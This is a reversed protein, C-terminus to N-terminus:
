DQTHPEPEFEECTVDEGTYEHVQQLKDRLRDVEKDSRHLHGRLRDREKKVEALDRMEKRIRDANAIALDRWAESERAWRERHNEAQELADRLERKTTM